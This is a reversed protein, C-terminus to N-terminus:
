FPIDGDEDTDVSDAPPGASSGEGPGDRDLEEWTAGYPFGAPTTGAIYAFTGDSDPFEEELAERARDQKQRARAAAKGAVTTRLEQERAASIRVGLQRLEFIACLADVGFRRCYGRVLNKGSYNAVWQTSRASALRATRDMRKRRPASSRRQNSM